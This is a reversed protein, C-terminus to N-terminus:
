NIVQRNIELLKAPVNRFSTATPVDLSKAMNNAIALGAGLILKGADDAPVPPAAPAPPPTSAPAAAPAPAPEVVPAPAPGAAVIHSPKYDEFFEQWTDSVSAPDARYREYMEDVLWANAGFDTSANDTATM